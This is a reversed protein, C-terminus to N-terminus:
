SAGAGADPRPVAAQVALSVWRIRFGDSGHAELGWAIADELQEFVAPPSAADDPIVEYRGREM